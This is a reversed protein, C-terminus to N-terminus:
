YRSSNMSEELQLKIQTEQEIYEASQDAFLVSMMMCWCCLLFMKTLTKMVGGQYLKNESNIKKSKKM